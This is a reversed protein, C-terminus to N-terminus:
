WSADPRRTEHDDGCNKENNEDGCNKKVEVRYSQTGCVDEVPDGFYTQASQTHAGDTRRSKDGCNRKRREDGCNDEIGVRHRQPGCVYELPDGSYTEPLSYTTVM